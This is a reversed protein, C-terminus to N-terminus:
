LRLRLASASTHSCSGPQLVPIGARSWSRLLLVSVGTVLTQIPISPCHRTVLTQIPISPCHCTVLTQIPISPCHCTVLTQIATSFYRHGPDSHIYQSVPILGPADGHSWFPDWHRYQLVLLLGHLLEIATSSCRYTVLIEIPASSCQYTILIQIPTSSCRYSVLIEILTSSCRYTVLIEIPTSSCRYTVLIQISTSSCWYIDTVLMQNPTSSCRCSVLLMATHGSLIGIVTSSCPYSVM